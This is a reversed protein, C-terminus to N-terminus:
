YPVQLGYTPVSATNRVIISRARPTKSVYRPVLNFRERPTLFGPFVTLTKIIIIQASERGVNRTAM